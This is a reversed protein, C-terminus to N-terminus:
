GTLKESSNIQIHRQKQPSESVIARWSSPGCYNIKKLFGFVLMEIMMRQLVALSNTYVIFRRGTFYFHELFVGTYRRMDAM